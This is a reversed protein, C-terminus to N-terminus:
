ESNTDQLKDQSIWGKKILYQRVIDPAVIEALDLFKPALSGVFVSIGAAYSPSEQLKLYETTGAAIIASSVVTILAREMSMSSTKSIANLGGLLGGILSCVTGLSFYSFVNDM